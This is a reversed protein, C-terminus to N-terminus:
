LLSKMEENGIIPSMLFNIFYINWDVSIVIDIFLSVAYNTETEFRKNHNLWENWAMKGKLAMVFDYAKYIM